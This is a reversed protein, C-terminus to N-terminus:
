APNTERLCLLSLHEDGRAAKPRLFRVPLTPTLPELGRPEVVHHTTRVGPDTSTEAPGNDNGTPIKFIPILGNGDIKIEAVHTEIVAKRQGPTGHAFVASLDDRPRQLAQASPAVAPSAAQEALEDCRTRLQDLKITLDRVRHGCAREDLTGNEFATLYRDIAAQTTTIQGTVAKLEEERQNSGEARHALEAAIAADIIDTSSYFDILAQQIAHDLLDADIRARRRM